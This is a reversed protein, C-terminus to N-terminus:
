PEPRDPTAPGAPSKALGPVLDPTTRIRDFVLDFTFGAAFGLPVLFFLLRRVDLDDLLGPVALLQSAIYLPVSVAAAGLGRLASRTWRQDTGFSDRIVAGAVAALMPGALLLAIDLRGAPGAPGALAVTTFAAVLAAAAVARGFGAMAALGRAARERRDRQQRAHEIARRLCAVLRIASHEDWPAGLLAVDDDTIGNRDRDLNVWVQGAGGGFAAVPLVPVDQAIAVIGAVRTSRAGGVLVVADAALLSRYFAVEWEASTDRAVEVVVSSGAPLDVTFDQDRAPRAVIRGPAGAGAAGVYGTVFLREAYGPKSSFVLLDCGDRLLAGGLEQCAAAAAALEGRLPPAYTKAPDLSGVVAILPRREPSPM